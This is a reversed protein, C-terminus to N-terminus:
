FPIIFGQQSVGSYSSFREGSVYRSGCLPQHQFPYLVVLPSLLVEWSLISSCKTLGCAHKRQGLVPSWNQLKPQLLPTWQQQISSYIITLQTLISKREQIFHFAFVSFPSIVSGLPLFAIGYKHQNWAPM